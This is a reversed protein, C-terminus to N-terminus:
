SAMFELSVASATKDNRKTKSERQFYLNLETERGTKQKPNGLRCCTDVRLCKVQPWREETAWLTKAKSAIPFEAAPSFKQTQSHVCPAIQNGARDNLASQSTEAVRINRCYNCEFQIRDFHEHFPRCANMQRWAREETRITWNM